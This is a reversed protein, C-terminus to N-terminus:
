YCRPVMPVFGALLVKSLQSRNEADIRAQNVAAEGKAKAVEASARGEAALKDAQCTAITRANNVQAAVTQMALVELQSLM